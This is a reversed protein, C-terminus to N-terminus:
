MQFNIFIKIRSKYELKQVDKLLLSNAKNDM